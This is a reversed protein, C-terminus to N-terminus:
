DCVASWQGTEETPCTECSMIQTERHTWTVGCGPPAHHGETAMCLSTSPQVPAPKDQPPPPVASPCRATLRLSCRPAGAQGQHM